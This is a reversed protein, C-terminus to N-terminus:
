KLKLLHEKDQATGSFNIRKFWNIKDQDTIKKDYEDYCCQCSIAYHNIQFKYDDPLQSFLFYEGEIEVPFLDNIFDIITTLRQKGDIVQIIDNGNSPNKESYDILSFICINPIYREYIISLILESKQLNNWVKERQLNIGLSPLFVDFDLKQRHLDKVKSFFLSNSSLKINLNRLESIPRM